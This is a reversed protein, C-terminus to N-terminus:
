SPNNQENVVKDILSSLLSFSKNGLINYAAGSQETLVRHLVYGRRLQPIVNNSIRDYYEAIEKENCPFKYGKKGIPSVIFVGDNRGCM